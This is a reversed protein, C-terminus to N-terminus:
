DSYDASSKRGNPSKRQRIRVLVAGNSSMVTMGQQVVAGELGQYRVTGAGRALLTALPSAVVPRSSGSACALQVQYPTRKRQVNAENLIDRIEEASPHPNIPEVTKPMGVSLIHREHLAQRVVPDNVGLDGALLHVSRKPGQHVRATAQVVKDLLPLM